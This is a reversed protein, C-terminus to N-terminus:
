VDSCCACGQALSPPPFAATSVPFSPAFLFTSRPSSPLSPLISFSHPPLVPSFSYIYFSLIFFLHTSSFCLFFSYFYFPLIICFLLTSPFCFFFFLILFPLSIPSRRVVCRCPSVPPAANLSLLQFVVCCFITVFPATHVVLTPIVCGPGFVLALAACSGCVCTEWVGQPLMDTNAASARTVRRHNVVIPAAWEHGCERPPLHGTHTSHGHRCSSPPLSLPPLSLLPRCNIQGSHWSRDKM